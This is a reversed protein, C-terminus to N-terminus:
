PLAQCAQLLTQTGTPAPELSPPLNCPQGYGPIRSIVNINGRTGTQTTVRVDVINGEVLITTDVIDLDTRLITLYPSNPSAVYVKGYESNQTSVVTRPNGIVPLTKEVTHSSLTVITVTGDTQNATYARSGDALVTVSAPNNGVPITYTTGFTPSDNGYEDLSMDIVSITGGDYDAVVLQTTAANYEAYVPGAITTMGSTGNPPTIGTAKVATLSLPLTPHCTVTQGNQNLFPTCADLTNDFSNIVTITDDGRNLVFFRKGDPSQVAYVPCQGLPIPTDASYSAVEMPTALGTPITTPSPATNCEVGTPNPINQGIAYNRQGISGLGVVTVPTLAVPIALKFVQPSVIGTLVDVFNGNLDAVWVGNTPSFLNVPEATSPLTLYSVQKAQLSPSVPFNSLTGDSNVTFGYGGFADLSFTTPGPGIPAIALVSDGSYDIVTAIGPTTTSPASVTVAYSSPQAAPGSSSIPTVVSRYTSGCGTILAVAALVSGAQVLRARAQGSNMTFLRM